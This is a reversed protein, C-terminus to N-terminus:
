NVTLGSEYGASLLYQLFKRKPTAQCFSGLCSAFDAISIANSRHTVNGSQWTLRLTYSVISDLPRIVMLEVDIATVQDVVPTTYTADPM